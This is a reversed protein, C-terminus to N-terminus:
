IEGLIFLSSINRWLWENSERERERQVGWQYALNLVSDMFSRQSGGKSSSSYSLIFSSLVSCPPCSLCAHQLLVILLSYYVIPTHHPTHCRYFFSSLSLSLSFASILVSPSPFFHNWNKIYHYFASHVVVYDVLFPTYSLFLM